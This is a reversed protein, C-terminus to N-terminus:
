AFFLIILSSEREFSLGFLRLPDVGRKFPTLLFHDPFVRFVVQCSRWDWDSHLLEEFLSM